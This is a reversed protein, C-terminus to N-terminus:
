ADPSFHEALWAALGVPGDRRAIERQEMAGNRQILERAADLEAECGLRRGAASLEDILAALRERTPRRRGSQLDALTGEVGWRMASWRNEAIRWSEAVPLAEGADHRDALTGVLSHAVATVAAASRLTTQSDPVRFELTGFSPHPRLEFWWRRPEPVAGSARGWSLQDAFADWGALVPPVGQRPLAGALTPRVSALGTDRGDHWPANAALAALEPLYGRAANYVALAREPGGVSVHVQLACVLQQRAADGYDKLTQEYREGENLQGHVAAFPHVGACAPRAFSPATESLLKRGARLAAIAEGATAQPETTIEIQSAPLELKLPAEAPAAELLERAVPALDLTEPDLLMVEEEIGVTMERGPAFAAALEVSDIPSKGRTM